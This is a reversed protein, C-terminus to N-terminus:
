GNTTSGELISNDSNEQSPQQNAYECIFTQNKRQGKLYPTLRGRHLGLADEASSVSSYWVGNVIIPKRSKEGPASKVFSLTRPDDEYRCPTGDPSFGNKVWKSVTTNSIGLERGLDVASEYRKGKYIIPKCGGKNYRVGSFEVQPSDKYRCRQGMPNIGKTCWRHITEWVVDFSKCADAVSQYEKEGIIVARSKKKAVAKSIEPNKMPNNTSMRRRQDASKMANHESYYTRKEETWWATTGGLGGGYINCVCQGLQKLEEVRDHEYQFADTESEFYRVIRSDCNFRKIMNNFFRNHKRVRYRRGTGKGVYIIEGTEVIFWEYVYFM